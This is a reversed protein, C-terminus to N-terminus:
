GWSPYIATSTAFTRFQESGLADAMVTFQGAVFHPRLRIHFQEGLRLIGQAVQNLSFSGTGGAERLYAVASVDDSFLAVVWDHFTPLFQRLAFDM